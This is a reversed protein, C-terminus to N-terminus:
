AWRRNRQIFAWAAGAVLVTLFAYLPLIHRLGLNTRFSMAVAFYLFPPIVLFLIERRGKLRRTAIAVVALVFLILFPLTSKIAFVTPFFHWVGQRYVKGFLFSTFSSEMMRVDALGYIYSEPLLHTRALALLVRGESPKSLGGVFQTLTPRVELRGPRAAYRFGYFAWLVGIAIICALVSAGILRIARKRLSVANGAGDPTARKGWILECLVLLALIPFILIGSHKSALTLGAVMGVLVIRWISPVKVYRYFAYITAFLFCSVGVDTTVLAGHGLLNPDFTILGLALFAPAIGFMERTALFILLALLVTLLASGMRTRFLIADTDNLFVFDKGGLFGEMKFYRNELAPVKLQMALLPVAALLKVLPPHEPNIGFDAHTWSRYGAYIHNAEDWTVSEQRAIYVLQLFLVILLCVVGAVIMRRGGIRNSESM